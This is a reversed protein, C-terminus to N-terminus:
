SSFVGLPCPWLLPMTYSAHVRRMCIGWVGMHIPHGAQSHRVQWAKQKKAWRSDTERRHRREGEQQKM